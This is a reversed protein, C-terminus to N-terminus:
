GEGEEGGEGGKPALSDAVVQFRAAMAECLRRREDVSLHPLSQPPAFFLLDLPSTGGALVEQVVGVIDRVLPPGYHGAFLSGDNLEYINQATQRFQTRADRLLSTRGTITFGRQVLHIPAALLMRRLDMKPPYHPLSIHRILPSSLLMELVFTWGSVKPLRVGSLEVCLMTPSSACMSVIEFLLDEPIQTVAGSVDLM